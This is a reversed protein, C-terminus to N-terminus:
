THLAVAQKKDTKEDTKKGIFVGVGPRSLSIETDFRTLDM